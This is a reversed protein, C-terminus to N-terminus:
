GVVGYFEGIRIQLNDYAEKMASGTELIGFHYEFYGGGGTNADYLEYWCCLLIRNDPNNINQTSVKSKIIPLATNVFREQEDRGHGLIDSYTSYGTEMIAGEKGYKNMVTILMGVLQIINKNLEGM